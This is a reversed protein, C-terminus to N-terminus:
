TLMGPPELRWNDILRTAGVFAAVLAIAPRTIREVPDLSDPDVLAVYQPKLDPEQSLRQLIGDLIAAADSEGAQVREHATRLGASIALGQQRQSENLYANRSSLALGDPERVTPCVVIEIPWALDHVMQRIVVTQQYDKQGFFAQDPGVQNFLKAVVTTVGRFHGPRHGGEWPLTVQEVNVYTQFARPYMEEVSPAFVLDVDHPALLALDTALDRPYRDFDEHPGFQTPNVFISVVTAGCRTRSADVLSLHGQHLAGMTPVFGISNGEARLSNLRARLDRTTTVVPPVGM